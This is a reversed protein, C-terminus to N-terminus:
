EILDKEQLEHLIRRIITEPPIDVSNCEINIFEAKDRYYSILPRTQAEYVKLRERVVEPRDDERQYLDRGCADCVGEKRPKLYRINYVAGCKMCIRRSSLRAIIVQEPVGLQIIADIKEICDLAKAQEITRPYGDLIFGNKGSIKNTEERVIEVVIDDPVLEGKNVFDVIKKGLDTNRKIEERIIDGTSIQAIRLRSALMSAYTGKGAGPPGFMVFRM